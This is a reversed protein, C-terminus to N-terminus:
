KLRGLEDYTVQGPDLPQPPYTVVETPKGPRTLRTEGRQSHEDYGFELRTGDPRRSAVLLKGFWRHQTGDPDYTFSFRRGLRDEAYLPRDARDPAKPSSGDHALAPLSFLAVATAIARIPLKM